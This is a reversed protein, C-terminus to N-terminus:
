RPTLEIVDIQSEYNPRPLVLRWRNAGVREVFGIMDREGDIGYQYARAEDGLQMTGLFVLRLDNDPYILGIPRQSGDIKTFGLANGSADATIRCTYAPYAVYALGGPARSGLKFTRCAYDGPPPAPETQAADPDLLAGEAAIEAQHGQARAAALGDTWADRWDHLRHRDEETARGRWTAGPASAPDPCEAAQLAALAATAILPLFM